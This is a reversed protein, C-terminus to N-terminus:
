CAPSLLEFPLQRFDQPITDFACVAKKYFQIQQRLSCEDELSRMSAIFMTALMRLITDKGNLSIDPLAALIQTFHTEFTRAYASRDEVQFIEHAAQIFGPQFTTWALRTFMSHEM